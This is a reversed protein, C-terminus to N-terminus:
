ILIFLRQVVFPVVSHITAQLSPSFIHSGHTQYPSLIGSTQIPWFWIIINQIYGRCLEPARLTVTSVPLGKWLDDPCSLGELSFPILVKIFSVECLMQERARRGKTMHPCLSSARLLCRFGGTGQELVEKSRSSCSINKKLKYVVEDIIKKMLLLM